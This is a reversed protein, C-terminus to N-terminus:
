NLDWPDFTDFEVEPYMSSIRELANSTDENVTQLDGDEGTVICFNISLYLKGSKFGEEIEEIPDEIDDSWYLNEEIDTDELSYQGSCLNGLFQVEKDHLDFAFIIKKDLIEEEGEDSIQRQRVDLYELSVEKLDYLIELLNSAELFRKKWEEKSFSEFIKLYRM